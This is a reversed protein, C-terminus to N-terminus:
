GVCKSAMDLPSTATAFGDLASPRLPLEAGERRDMMELIVPPSSISLGTLLVSASSLVRRGLVEPLWFEPERRVFVFPFREDVTLPSPLTSSAGTTGRNFTGLAPLLSCLM